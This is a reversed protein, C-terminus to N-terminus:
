DPVTYLDVGPDTNATDVQRDNGRRQKLRRDALNKKTGWHGIVVRGSVSRWCVFMGEWCRVGSDM